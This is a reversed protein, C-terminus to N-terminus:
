AWFFASITGIPGCSNGASQNSWEAIKPNLLVISPGHDPVYFLRAIM